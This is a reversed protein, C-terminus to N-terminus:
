GASTVAEVFRVTAEIVEPGHVLEPDNHDAGTIVLLEKSGPAAAHIARSQAVPVISDGDGAIVLVPVTMAGIREISPYRDKLLAGVPLWPYHTRGVDAMSTFPSRLVLVAPPEDLALRIAVASGLSEGFYVVPHGPATSRVFAAAAAADRALGDESPDGPNGGYGRYDTLLVGLGRDALADGLPGRDGRNGGNGSFVIVVPTAAPPASFWGNLVLGDSTEYAVEIWGAGMWELGPTQRDPFYILRRQAAWIGAGMAVMVGLLVLVVTM